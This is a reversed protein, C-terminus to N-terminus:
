KWHRGPRLRREVLGTLIGASYLLRAPIVVRDAGRLAESVGKKLAQWPANDLWPHPVKAIDFGKGIWRANQFIEAPTDPSFHLFRAGSAAVALSAFKPALTMDEGYGVDDYGGVALFEDRLVARFNAWEDPFSEPLLRPCGLRRIRGYARAWRNEANGLYLEKSFTGAVDPNSFPKILAAIAGPMAAMDGDLFAIIPASAAAVGVNRARAPGGHPLRLVHAGSSAAISATHDNSGDDVVIVELRLAESFITTVCRGIHKEEEFAAV